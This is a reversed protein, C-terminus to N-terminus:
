KPRRRTILPLTTLSALLLSTPEPAPTTPILGNTTPLQSATTVNLGLNTLVDTLDAIDITPAHDFNGQNWHTNPTGLHNLVTNLDSLDIIGDLNTDGLLAPVLLLSNSDIPIGRFSTQAFDANDVLAIALNHALTTTLIGSTHTIGYALQDQLTTLAAAKNSATPELILPATTLNLATTWAGPNGNLTLSRAKVPGQLATPATIALDGNILLIGTPGGLTGGSATLPTNLTLTGNAPTIAGASSASRVTANGFGTLLAGADIQLLNDALLNGGTLTITGNANAIISSTPGAQAAPLLGNHVIANGGGQAVINGGGQAVINGGGQAVINGGGQAVISGGDNSVVNGGGQAVINGGGQAVINGGGQAVIQGGISINGMITAHGNAGSATLNGGGAIPFDSPYNFSGGVNFNFAGAPVVTSGAGLNITGDLILTGNQYLTQGDTIYATAGQPITMTGFNNLTGYFYTAGQVFLSGNVGNVVTGVVITTSQSDTSFTLSGANTLTGTGDGIHLENVFGNAAALYLHGFNTPNQDMYLDASGYVGNAIGVFTTNPAFNGRITGSGYINFAAGGGNAVSTSVTSGGYLDVTANVVGGNYNFLTNYAYFHASGNDGLYGADQNFRANYMYVTTGGAIGFSAENAVNAGFIIPVNTHVTGRNVFAGNFDMGGSDDTVINLNANNNFVGGGDVTIDAHYGNDAVLTINGFNTANNQVILNSSGTVGNGISFLTAHPPLNGILNLQQYANFGVGLGDPVALKLTSNGYLNITLFVQGGNFNFTSNYLTFVTSGTNGFNGANQDFTASLMSVSVGDGINFSGNNVTHATLTFNDYANIQGNNILVGDMQVVGSNALDTMILEGNNIFTSTGDDVEITGPYGNATRIVLTGNNATGNSIDLSAAGTIGNSTLYLFTNAPLNGLLGINQFGNITAGGGDAIPLYLFSNYLSITGDGDPRSADPNYSTSRQITGGSYSFSGDIISLDTNDNLFLTGASQVFSSEVFSATTPTGAAVGISFINSNTVVGTFNTSAADSIVGANLITGTISFGGSDPTFATLSGNSGITLNGGVELSTAYGNSSQLQIHGATLNADGSVALDSGGTIGNGIIQLDVKSANLTLTAAAQNNIITTTYTSNILFSVNDTLTPIARPSWNSADDWFGGSTNEWNVNAARAFRPLAACIASVALACSIAKPLTLSSM